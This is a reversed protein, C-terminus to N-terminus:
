YLTYGKIWVYRGINANNHVDVRVYPGMVPVRVVYTGRTWVGPNTYSGVGSVEM